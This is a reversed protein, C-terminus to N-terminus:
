LHTELFAVLETMNSVHYDAQVPKSKPGVFVTRCGARRGAEVDKAQDGVMWSRALDLGHAAAADLLMGPNPKRRPSADDGDTCVVIDLLHLRRKKLEAQLNSHIEDLAHQAVAGTSVGKQNTVVVAEFGKAHVVRLSDIFEPILFFDAWREVYRTQPARNVIGDRDFFVCPKKM